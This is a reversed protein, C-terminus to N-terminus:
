GKRKELEHVTKDFVEFALNAMKNLEDLTPNIEVMEWAAVKEWSILKSNLEIAEEHSLGNDVPTGTGRSLSPDMSDVDFSIYVIDCNNLRKKTKEIAADLGTERLEEVTINLMSNKDILYQEPKETSRVAIFVLDEYNYKPGEIGLNKIKNWKDITDKKPNNIRCDQNDEAAAMALPMGHMNGSPSTYPSHLDAHADIWIIGLRKNPFAKKIGAISAYAMSHDGSLILPFNQDGIVKTVTQAHKEGVELIGEIYKGNPNHPPLDLDHNRHSLKTSKYNAFLNSQKNRASVKLAEVGLSAGRTGAGLESPVEIFEISKMLRKFIKCELVNGM